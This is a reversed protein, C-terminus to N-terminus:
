GVQPKLDSVLLVHLSGKMAAPLGRAFWTASGSSALVHLLVGYEPTSAM